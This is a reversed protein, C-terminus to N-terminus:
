LAPYLLVYEPNQMVTFPIYVNDPRLSASRPLWAEYNFKDYYYMDERMKVIDADLTGNIVVWRNYETMKNDSNITLPERKLVYREMPKTQLAVWENYTEVLKEMYPLMYKYRRMIINLQASWYEDTWVTPDNRQRIDREKRRVCNMLSELGKVHKARCKDNQCHVAGKAETVAGMGCGLCGYVCTEELEDFDNKVKWMLPVPLCRDIHNRLDDVKNIFLSDVFEMAHKKHIHNFLSRNQFEENCFPCEIKRNAASTTSSVSRGDMKSKLM